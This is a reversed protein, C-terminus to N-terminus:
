KKELQRLAKAAQERASADSSAAAERLHVIAAKTDGVAALAAGLGLQARGSQPEIRVAARYHPVAERAQGKAMLMNGLLEHADVFKPDTRLSTELERQAENFHGTRGLLMAYNYRTAADRPRLRLAIEFHDRADTFRGAAALLNAMNGHADAYDPQIRIAERFAAEAHAPERRAFWLIGLNNHAEPLDPNLKVAKALAAVADTNRGLARYTLGLENWTVAGDPEVSAARRLTKAADAYRHSHRLATGLKLLGFAFKPSREVAEQYVPVAKALQGNSELAEALELYYEARRPAYKQIAATLQAIGETLNSRQKVQAVALYLENEPTNPLTEPYYLVVQGRYANAGTAHREPRDALLDGRPMQRQIYHDTAIVHVVDETRRKPMHCDICNMARTHKGAKVEQEFAAAHCQRCVATYHRQAAEGRPINHPNHCTTCLLKGKSQLFCASRRLRYAANVLEFKNQHGTGPAHDFNLIFSGMPEGPQYSFPGRNYREIANPLPFSTTELHCVMCLEMQDQATLRSPNGISNRIDELRVGPMAALQAHRKGPGHCRQCDIGEPLEGEYVPTAFQQQHGVPIKPYANHCFMCDYTILRRFGDHHPRDYGPNMAWYGGKEAYWGLPLEILTNSATRHLYARAHNGSGMVYDIRKELVNIQKGSSDLQYRRQYYEGGRRIMTFYSNSPQHYFTNKRTFDEVMNEPSPRYFSRGMGTRIYSRYVDRHCGACLRTGERQAEAVGAFYASALAGVLFCTLRRHRKVAM